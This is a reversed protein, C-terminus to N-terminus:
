TDNRTNLKVISVVIQLVGQYNDSGRWGWL